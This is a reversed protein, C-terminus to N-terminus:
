DPFLRRSTWCGVTWHIAVIEQELDAVLVDTGVLVGCQVAVDGM